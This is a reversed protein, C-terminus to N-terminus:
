YILVSNPLHIETTKWSYIYFKNIYFLQWVVRRFFVGIYLDIAFTTNELSQFKLKLQFVQLNIEAPGPFRPSFFVIFGSHIIEFYRFLIQFM